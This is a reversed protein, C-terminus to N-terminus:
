RMEQIKLALLPIPIKFVLIVAYGLELLQCSKPSLVFHSSLFEALFVAPSLWPRGGLPGCTAPWEPVARGGAGEDEVM